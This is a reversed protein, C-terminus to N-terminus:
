TRSPCCFVVIPWGWYNTLSPVKLGDTPPEFGGRGILILAIRAAAVALHETAFEAYPDVGM